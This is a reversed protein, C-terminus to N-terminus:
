NNQGSNPLSNMGIPESGGHKQVAAIIFLKRNKRRKLVLPKGMDSMVAVHAPV